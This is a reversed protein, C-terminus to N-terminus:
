KDGGKLKVMQIKAGHLKAFREAARKSLFTACCGSSEAGREGLVQVAQQRSEWQVEGCVLYLRRPKRKNTM